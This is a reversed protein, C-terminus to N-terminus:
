MKKQKANSINQLLKKKINASRPLPLSFPPFPGSGEPLGGRGDPGGGGEPLGFRILVYTLYHSAHEDGTRYIMPEFGLRTLFGFVIFNTNTAERSLV